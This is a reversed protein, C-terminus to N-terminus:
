NNVMRGDRLTLLQDAYDRSVEDHSVMVINTDSNDVVQRMFDHIDLTSNSDLSATPEDAFVLSPKHAFARVIGVRQAQGGSLQSPFKRLMNVVELRECLELTWEPDVQEGALEHPLLINESASLGALLGSRQFIMGNKARLRTRETDSMQTIIRRCHVIEGEDPRDIASLMNLLTTKGSGSSGRIVTLGPKITVSVNDLAKVGLFRKTIGFAFIRDSPQAEIAM